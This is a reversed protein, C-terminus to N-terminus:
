KAEKLSNVHQRTRRIATILKKRTAGDEYNNLISTEMLTLQQNANGVFKNISDGRYGGLLSKKVEIVAAMLRQEFDSVQGPTVKNKLASRALTEIRTLEEIDSAYKKDFVTRATTGFVNKWDGKIKKAFDVIFKINKLNDATKAVSSNKVEDDYAKKTKAIMPKDDSSVYVSREKLDKLKMRRTEILTAEPGSKKFYGEKLKLNFQRVDEAFEKNFKGEKFLKESKRFEVMAEKYAKDAKAREESTKANKRAILLDGVNKKATALLSAWDHRIDHKQKKDKQKFDRRDKYMNEAIKFYDRKLKANKDAVDAQFKREKRDDEVNFIIKDMRLEEEQIKKRHLDWAEKRDQERKALQDAVEDRQAQVNAKEANLSTKAIKQYEDIDEKDMGRIAKVLEMGVKAANIREKESNANNKIYDTKMKVIDLHWKLYDKEATRGDKIEQTMLKYVEMLESREEKRNQYDEEIEKKLIEGIPVGYAGGYGINGGGRIWFMASNFLTEGFSDGEVLGRRKAPTMVRNKIAEREDYVQKTREKLLDLYNQDFNLLQTDFMGLIQKDQEIEQETKPSLLKDIIANTRDILKDNREIDEQKQEPTRTDYSKLKDYTMKSIEELRSPKGSSVLGTGLEIVPNGNEDTGVQGEIENHSNPTIPNPNKNIDAFYDKPAQPKEYPIANTVAGKAAGIGLATKGANPLSPLGPISAPARSPIQNFEQEIMEDTVPNPTNVDTHSYPSTAKHRNGILDWLVKRDM